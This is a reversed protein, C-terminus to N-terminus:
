EIPLRRRSWKPFLMGSRSAYDRYVQGHVTMLYSEEDSAKAVVCVLHIAVIAVSLLTPLLLLAGVLMVIQFLYIPHRVFAYPGQTVLANKERRNIGMRWSAGMATYCWLTGAYGAVTLLLGGIFGPAQALFPVVRLWTPMLGTGILCPQAMWLAIVLFWGAWLLREKTGRPRVNPSKGIQRRVRRAKVVVGTWYVVAASLAVGRRLFVDDSM